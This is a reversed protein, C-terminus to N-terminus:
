RRAADGDTQAGDSRRGRAGGEIEGGDAAHEEADANARPARGQAFELNNLRCRLEEVRRRRRQRVRRSIVLHAQWTSTGASPVSVATHAVVCRAIDISRPKTELM